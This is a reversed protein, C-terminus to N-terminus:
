YFHVNNENNPLKDYCNGTLYSQVVWKQDIPNSPVYEYGVLAESSSKNKYRAYGAAESKCFKYPVLKLDDTDPIDKNSAIIYLKFADVNNTMLKFEADQATSDAVYKARKLKEDKEKSDEEKIIEQMKKIVESLPDAVDKYQECSINGNSMKLLEACLTSDPLMLAMVRKKAEDITAGDFIWENVALLGKVVEDIGSAPGFLNKWSPDNIFSFVPIKELYNKKFDDQTLNTLSKIDTCEYPPKGQEKYKKNIDDCLKKLEQIMSNLRTPGALQEAVTEFYAFVLPYLGFSYITLNWLTHLLAGVRGSAHMKMQEALTTPDGYKITNGVREAWNKLTFEWEVKIEGEKIVAVKELPLVLKLWAGAKIWLQSNLREVRTQSMAEAIHAWSDTKQLKIFDKNDKIMKNQILYKEFDKKMNDSAFKGLNQISNTLAILDGYIEQPPSQQVKYAIRDLREDILKLIESKDMFFEGGLSGFRSNGNPDLSSFWNRYWNQFRKAMYSRYLDVIFSEPKPTPVRATGIFDGSRVKPIDVNYKTNVITAIIPDNTKRFIYGYADEGTNKFNDDLMLLFDSESEDGRMTVMIEDVAKEYGEKNQKQLMILLENVAEDSLKGFSGGQVRLSPNTNVDDVFKKIETFVSNKMHITEGNIPNKWTVNVSSGVRSLDPSGRFIGRLLDVIPNVPILAESINLKIGMLNRVRLIESILHKDM